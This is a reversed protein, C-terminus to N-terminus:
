PFNFDKNILTLLFTKSTKTFQMVEGEDALGDIVKPNKQSRSFSTANWYRPVVKLSTCINKYKTFECVILMSPVWYSSHNEELHKRKLSWFFDGLPTRYFLHLGAVNNFYLSHCLHKGTLKAFNGLIGKRLSCRRHSSRFSAFFLM